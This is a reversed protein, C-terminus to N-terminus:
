PFKPPKGGNECWSKHPMCVKVGYGGDCCVYSEGLHACEKNNKCGPKSQGQAKNTLGVCALAMGVLGVGLKKLARRRTVTQALSKTLEDFRDEMVKKENRPKQRHVKM